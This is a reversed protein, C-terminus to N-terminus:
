LTSKAKQRQNILLLLQVFAIPLATKKYALYKPEWDTSFKDKFERLGRFNYLSNGHLYALHILKETMFSHHCNGVNSLPSMGLSCAQYGNSSAWNFIHVFLADMTGNPSDAVKRMLDISITGKYNTPLTAFAILKGESNRIRAVPFRSVYQESFAAVSFGKEKQDGLWMSSVATIESLVEESFPPQVVDFSYGNRSLKNLSTRLKGNKKGETTFLQLNVIGEEGLKVFRYGSDHYHQMYKPSIQYFVPKLGRDRGYDSFEKITQHIHAEEGVPDGLVILKNAFRKYLIFVTQDVNWFVEKDNLFTLHTLHNGGKEQLLSTMRAIHGELNCSPIENRTRRPTMLSNLLKIYM